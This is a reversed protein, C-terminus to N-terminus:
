ISGGKKNASKTFIYFVGCFWIIVFVLFYIPNRFMLLFALPLSLVYISLGILFAYFKNMSNRM